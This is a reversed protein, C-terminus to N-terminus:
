GGGGFPSRTQTPEPPNLAVTDGVALNGSVVVLDGIVEGTAVNVRETLGGLRQRTVYEGQDDYQVAALPVALAGEQIRTVINASATMGLLVRAEATTVEIRVTYRVLGQVTQGVPEIRAVTGALTLDPLADFTLTVANGVSIQDIESEDVSANIHLTRRDAIVV